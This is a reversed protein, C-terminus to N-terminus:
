QQTETSDDCRRNIAVSVRQLAVVEGGV